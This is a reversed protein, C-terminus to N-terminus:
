CSCGRGSSRNLGEGRPYFYAYQDAALGSNAFTVASIFSGKEVGADKASQVNLVREGLRLLALWQEAKEVAPYDGPAVPRGRRDLLLGFALDSVLRILFPDNEGSLQDLEAATYRNATEAAARVQGSADELAAILVPHTPVAEVPPTVVGSAPGDALLNQVARIDRRALFQEPTVYSSSM